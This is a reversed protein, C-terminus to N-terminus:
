CEQAKDRRYNRLRDCKIGSCAKATRDPSLMMVMSSFVMRCEMGVHTRTHGFVMRVGGVVVVRRRRLQVSKTECWVFGVAAQSPTPTNSGADPRWWAEMGGDMGGREAARGLPLRRRSHHGAATIQTAPARSCGRSAHRRRRRSCCYGSPNHAAAPRCASRGAGGLAARPCRRRRSAPPLMAPPHLRPCM